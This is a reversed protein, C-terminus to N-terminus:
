FTNSVDSDDISNGNDDYWDIWEGDEFIQLGGVNCYDLKINHEFQFLDYEALMDLILKAEKLSEVKYSFQKMPIQPIWWIRLDGEQPDSFFKKEIADCYKCMKNDKQKGNLIFSIWIENILVGLLM